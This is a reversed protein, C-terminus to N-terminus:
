PATPTLDAFGWGDPVVPDDTWWPGALVQQLQVTLWAASLKRGVLSGGGPVRAGGLALHDAVTRRVPGDAAVVLHGTSASSRARDFAVILEILDELRVPAILAARAQPGLGSTALADRIAPTDVLSARVVVTPLDAAALRAEVEGKARRIADDAGPDAGPLSLAIVRQVGAGTAARLVVEVDDVMAAPDRSLLGGGVHVMTHVDAAAAELRGEDDRTGSAIFVGAARLVATDGASFARVEGGEQVLRVAIRRALPQEAATVLVPM